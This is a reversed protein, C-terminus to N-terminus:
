NKPVAEFRGSVALLNLAFGFLNIGIAAAWALQSSYADPQQGYVIFHKIIGSYGVTVLFFAMLVRYLMFSGRFGSLLCLGYILMFVGGVVPSTSALPQGGTATKLYSVVNYGFGLACYALQLKLLSSIVVRNALISM